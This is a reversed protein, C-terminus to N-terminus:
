NYTMKVRVKNLPKKSMYTQHNDPNVTDTVLGEAISIRDQSYNVRDDVSQYTHTSCRSYVVNEILNLTSTSDYSGRNPTGNRGMEEKIDEGIQGNLETDSHSKLRVTQCKHIDVACNSQLCTNRCTGVTLSQQDIGVSDNPMECERRDNGDDNVTEYVHISSTKNAERHDNDLPGSIAVVLSRGSEMEDIVKFLHRSSEPLASFEPLALLPSM